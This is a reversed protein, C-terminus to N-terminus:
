RYSFSTEEMHKGLSPAVKAFPIAKLIRARGLLIFAEIIILKM